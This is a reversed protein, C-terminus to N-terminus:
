ISPMLFSSITKIIIYIRSRSRILLEFTAAVLRILLINFNFIWLLDISKVTFTSNLNWFSHSRWIMILAIGLLLLEFNQFVLVSSMKLIYELSVVFFHVVTNLFGLRNQSKTQRINSRTLHTTQCGLGRLEGCDKRFIFYIFIKHAWFALINNNIWNLALRALVNYTVFTSLLTIHLTLIWFTKLLDCSLRTFNM